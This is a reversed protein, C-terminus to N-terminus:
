GARRGATASIPAVIAREPEIPLMPYYSRPFGDKRPEPRWNQLIPAIVAALLALSYTAALQRATPTM